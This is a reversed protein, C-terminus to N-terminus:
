ITENIKSKFLKFVLLSVFLGWFMGAAVDFPFHVGLYIRSFGIITAWSFLFIFAKINKFILGIFFAIAFVNSAHSSIFSYLGGCEGVLRLGEIEQHCPRLRHFINKFLHVSGSDALIILIILSCIVWFFNVKLKKYIFYLIIIYLPIWTYKNTIFLMIPDMESFGNNNILHFLYKDIKDLWNIMIAAKEM